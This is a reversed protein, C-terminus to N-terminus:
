KPLMQAHRVSAHGLDYALLIWQGQGRVSGYPVSALAHPIAADTRRFRPEFDAPTEIWTGLRPYRAQVAALAPTLAAADLAGEVEAYAIVNYRTIQDGLWFLAEAPGLARELEDGSM